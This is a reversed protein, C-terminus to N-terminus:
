RRRTASSRARRTHKGDSLLKSPLELADDILLDTSVKALRAYKLLVPLPPERIGSEYESVSGQYIVDLLGMARILENQSLGLATRIQLLKAPLYKPRLRRARGM